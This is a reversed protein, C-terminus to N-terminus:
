AHPPHVCQVEIEFILTKGALPHNADVVAEDEGLETVWVQFEREGVRALLHDGVKVGEPLATRPVRQELEAVRDGYGKEPSLTFTRKEGPEMGIVGQSVGEILEPSGAIFELPEGDGTEDFVTGDEFRGTYLVHVTDGAKVRDM